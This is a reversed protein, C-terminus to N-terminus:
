LPKAVNAVAVRVVVAFVVLVLRVLVRRRQRKSPNIYNNIIVAMDYRAVGKPIDHMFDCVINGTIHFNPIDNFICRENLGTVSVNNQILDSEYNIKNRLLKSESIFHQLDSKPSRCIRCYYNASFSEIFGLISNLGLNDGLVLGLAFYITIHNLLQIGNEQIEILEKILARFMKKNSIKYHSRDSSHFLFAVFINDLSSLYEPPFAPITYYICGMKHIGSHPGLPNGMDADDYYLFILFVIKNSFKSEINKWTSGDVFSSLVSSNTRNNLFNQATNLVGPLEFFSKLNKKLIILSREFKEVGNVYKKEKCYGVNITRPKFFLNNDELYKIRLHDTNLKSFPNKLVELLKDIEYKQIPNCSKLLPELKIKLKCIIGSILDDTDSVINQLLTRTVNPKSQLDVVFRMVSHLITNKFDEDIENVHTKDNDSTNPNLIDNIFPNNVETNESVHTKPFNTNIDFKSNSDNYIMSHDRNLHKRFKNIGRFDISCNNQNCVCLSENTLNHFIKLHLILENITLITNIPCHMQILLWTEYCERPYSCNFSFYTKFCISLARLPCNTSWLQDNIIIIFPQITTGHEMYNKRRRSIIHEFTTLNTIHTVIASASEELSSKWFKKVANIKPNKIQTKTPILFPLLLLRINITHYEKNLEASDFQSLLQIAHKDKVSGRRINVISRTFCTWNSLFISWNKFEEKSPYQLEFDKKILEYGRPNQLIPWLEFVDSLNLNNQIETYRIEFTIEWKEVIKNFSTNLGDTRLWERALQVENELAGVKRLRRSVNKWREILKGIAHSQEEQKEPIFYVGELENPFIETIIKAINRFYLDTGEFCLLLIQNLLTYKTLIIKIIPAFKCQDQFLYNILLKTLMKQGYDSLYGNHSKEDAIIFRGDNTSFLLELVTTVNNNAYSSKPANLIIPEDLSTLHFGESNSNIFDDPEKIKVAEATIYNQIQFGEHLNE